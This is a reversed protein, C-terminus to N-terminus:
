RERDCFSTDKKAAYKPTSSNVKFFPQFHMYGELREIEDITDFAINQRESSYM